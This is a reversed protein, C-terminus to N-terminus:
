QWKICSLWYRFDSSGSKLTHLEPLVGGRGPLSGWDGGRAFGFLFPPGGKLSFPSGGDHTVSTQSTVSDRTRLRGSACEPCLRSYSGDRELFQSGDGDKVHQRCRHAMCYGELFLRDREARSRGQAM